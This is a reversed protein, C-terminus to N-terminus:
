TRSGAASSLKEESQLVASLDLNMKGLIHIPEHRM